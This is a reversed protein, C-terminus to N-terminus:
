AGETAEVGDPEARQSLLAVVTLVRTREVLAKTILQRVRLTEVEGFRVAKPASKKMRPTAPTCSGWRSPTSARSRPFIMRGPLSIRATIGLLFSGSSEPPRRAPGFSLSPWRIVM